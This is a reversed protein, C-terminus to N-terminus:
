VVYGSTKKRVWELLAEKAKGRSDKSNEDLM